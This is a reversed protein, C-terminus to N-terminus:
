EPNLAPKTEYRTPDKLGALAFAEKREVCTGCTGCHVEGGKYCSWTMQFDVGLSRGLITIEYKKREIFPRLLEIEAYTGVRMARGLAIMFQERCDPYIAHDGAHAAILVAQAGISEAYGTAVSLFIANRFPVVTAKMSADEYHGDPIPNGGELLSSNFLEGIFDLRIVRHLLKLKQTHYKACALEQPNHRTGYDFSIAAALQHMRTAHYLLTVSDLGGSLLVVAKM